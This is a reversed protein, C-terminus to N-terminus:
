CDSDNHTIVIDVGLMSTIDLTFSLKRIESHLWQQDFNNGAIYIRCLNPLGGAKIAALDMKTLLNNKLNVLKLRPFLKLKEFITENRMQNEALHLEEIGSTATQIDSISVDVLDFNFGTRTLDLVRLNPLKAIGKIDLNLIKTGQLALLELHVLKNNGFDLKLPYKENFNIYLYRLNPTHGFLTAALIKLKNGSLQLTILKPLNLVGDDIEELQNQELELVELSPLTKFTSRGIKTLCNGSLLLKNLNVLGEFAFDKIVSIQNSYLNIEFLNSAGYFVHSYLQELRNEALNLEILNRAFIFDSQSLEIASHGTADFVKLNPFSKFIQPLLVSTPIDFTTVSLRIAEIHSFNTWQPLIFTVPETANNNFTPEKSKIFCFKPNETTECNLKLANSGTFTIISIVLLRFFTFVIEKM